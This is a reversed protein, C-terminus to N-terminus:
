SSPSFLVWPPAIRLWSEEDRHCLTAMALAFPILLSAFGVFLIPPHITMWYDQLLPNLGQGDAPVRDLLKFPGEVVLILLLFIQAWNLFFMSTPVIRNRSFSLVVGLISSFLAWLLFTGQQGGWFAAFVFETPMTRSSYSAVYAYQFQHTLLLNWLWASLLALLVFQLRFTWDALPRLRERGTGVALYLGGALLAVIFAIWTGFIGINM